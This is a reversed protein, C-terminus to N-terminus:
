KGQEDDSGGASEQGGEEVIETIVRIRRSVIWAAVGGTALGVIAGQALGVYLRTDSSAQLNSIEQEQDQVIQRLAETDLEALQTVEGTLAVIKDRTHVTDQHCGICTESGVVFTHGTAVLGGIPSGTRPSTYMHCNSCELGANAHTSHTFTQGPDKHCNGCLANVSEAKPTQTHPNHCAQCQIGIEGHLSARWEDTTTKHCTACLTADPTIPMKTQPHGTQYPGHCSECTVGEFRYAGTSTDYGTTHCQLCSNQDPNNTWNEQFIPSSFAAAHRTTMWESHIDKHCAACVEPGVYDGTTPAEPPTATQAAPAAVAPSSYALAVGLMLCLGFCLGFAAASKGRFRKALGMM